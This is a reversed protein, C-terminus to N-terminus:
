VGRRRGQKVRCRRKVKECFTKDYLREELEFLTANDSMEYRRQPIQRHWWRIVALENLITKEGIGEQRRHRIYAAVHRPQINRIDEPGFREAVFALFRKYRRFKELRGQVSGGRAFKAVREVFQEGLRDLAANGTPKWKVRLAVCFVGGIFVFFAPSSGGKVVVM